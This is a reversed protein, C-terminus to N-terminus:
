HVNTYIIVVMVLALPWTIYVLPGPATVLLLFVMVALMVNNAAATVINM